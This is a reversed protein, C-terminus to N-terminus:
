GKLQNILSVTDNVNKLETIRDDSISINYESELSLVLQMATFSDMGHETFLDEDGIEEPEIELMQAVRNRIEEKLDM